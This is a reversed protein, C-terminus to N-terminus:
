IKEKMTWYEYVRKDIVFVYMYWYCRLFKSFYFENLSKDQSVKM